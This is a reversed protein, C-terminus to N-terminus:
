TREEGVAQLILHCAMKHSCICMNEKPNESYTTCAPCDCMGEGSDIDIGVSHEEESGEVTFLWRDQGILDIRVKEEEILNRAKGWKHLRKPNVEDKIKRKKEKSLIM